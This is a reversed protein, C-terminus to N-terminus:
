KYVSMLNKWSLRIFLREQQISKMDEDSILQSCSYIQKWARWGTENIWNDVKRGADCQRWKQLKSYIKFDPLTLGGLKNEKSIRKARKCGKCKWTFTLILWDIEESEGALTESPSWSHRSGNPPYQLQWQRYSCCHDSKMPSASPKRQRDKRHGLLSLILELEWISSGGGLFVCCCRSSYRCSTQLSAPLNPLYTQGCIEAAKWRPICLWCTARPLVLLGSIM